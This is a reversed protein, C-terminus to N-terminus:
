GGIHQGRHLPTDVEEGESEGSAGLGFLALLREIKANLRALINAASKHGKKNQVLYSKGDFAKVYRVESAHKQVYFLCLAVIILLVTWETSGM